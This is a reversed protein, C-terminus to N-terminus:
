SMTAIRGYKYWESTLIYYEKGMSILVSVDIM